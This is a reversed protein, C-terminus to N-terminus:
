VNPPSLGPPKAALAAQEVPRPSPKPQPATSPKQPGQVGPKPATGGPVAAAAQAAGEEPTAPTFGERGEMQRQISSPADKYNIAMSPPPVQPGAPAAPVPQIAADADQIQLSKLIQRYFPAVIAQVEPPKEYFETVREAAASNSDIVQEGRYRSLLLKVKLTINM